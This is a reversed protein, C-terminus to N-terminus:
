AAPPLPLTQDPPPTDATVSGCYPCLYSNQSDSWAALLWIPLYLGCSLWTLVLHFGHACGERRGLVLGQCLPCYTQREETAM